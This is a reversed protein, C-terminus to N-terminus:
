NVIVVQVDNDILRDITTGEVCNVRAVRDVKRDDRVIGLALLPVWMLVM